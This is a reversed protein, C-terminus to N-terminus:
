KKGSFCLNNLVNIDEKAPVTTKSTSTFMISKKDLTHPLGLAHGFEHALTHILEDKNLALYIDIENNAPSYLGEEPKDQIVENFNAASQNLQSIINNYEKASLNLQEVLKNLEETQAKLSAQEQILKQYEEPPAGGNNNWYDIKTNLATLRKKFDAVMINYKAENPTLQSKALQLQTERASIQSSISQREDYVLNITLSGKPDYIFLTKGATKNWINAGIQADKILDETKINFQPDITGIKYYIPHACPAITRIYYSLTPPLDYKNFNIPLNVLIGAILVLIFSSIKEIM